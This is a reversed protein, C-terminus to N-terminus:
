FMEFVQSKQKLGTHLSVPSFALVPHLLLERQNALGFLGLVLPILFHLPICLVSLAVVPLVCLLYSTDSYCM